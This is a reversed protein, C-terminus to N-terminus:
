KLYKHMMRTIIALFASFKGQQQMRTAGLTTDHRLHRISATDPAHLALLAVGRHAARALLHRCRLCSVVSPCTSSLRM